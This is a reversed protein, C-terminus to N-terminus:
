RRAKTAIVVTHLYHDSARSGPGRADRFGILYDLLVALWHLKSLNRLFAQRRTVRGGDTAIVKLGLAWKGPTRGWAAECIGSGIPLLIALALLTLPFFIGSAFAPAPTLSLAFGIGLLAAAVVAVALTDLLLAAARPLFPAAAETTAAAFYSTRVDKIAALAADVHGATVQVAGAQTAIAQAREHLDAQLERAGDSSGLGGHAQTLRAVETELRTKAATTWDM